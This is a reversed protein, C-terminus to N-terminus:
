WLSAVAMMECVQSMYENMIKKEWKETCNFRGFILHLSIVIYGFSAQRAVCM